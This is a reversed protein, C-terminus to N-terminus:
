APSQGERLQSRGDIFHPLSSEELDDMLIFLM